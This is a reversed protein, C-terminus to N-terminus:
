YLKGQIQRNIQSSWAGLLIKKLVTVAIWGGSDIYRVLSILGKGSITELQM